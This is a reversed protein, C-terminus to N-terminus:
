SGPAFFLRVGNRRICSAVKRRALVRTRRAARMYSLKYPQGKNLIGLEVLIASAFRLFMGDEPADQYNSYTAKKGFHKEYAVALQGVITEVQNRKTIAGIVREGLDGWHPPDIIPQNAQQAAAELEAFVRLPDPMVLSYCQRIRRDDELDDNYIDRAKQILKNFKERRKQRAKRLGENAVEHGAVCTAVSGSIDHALMFPDILKYDFEDGLPAEKTASLIRDTAAPDLRKLKTIVKGM